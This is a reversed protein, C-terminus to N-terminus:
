WFNHVIEFNLPKKLGFTLETKHQKIWLGLSM